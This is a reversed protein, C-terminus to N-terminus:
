YSSLVVLRTDVRRSSLLFLKTQLAIGRELTLDAAKKEANAKIIQEGKAEEAEQTM